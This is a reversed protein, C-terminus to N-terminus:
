HALDDLVGRRTMRIVALSSPDRGGCLVKKLNKAKSLIVTHSLNLGVAFKAWWVM